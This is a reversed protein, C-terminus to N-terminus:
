EASIEEETWLLKSLDKKGLEWTQTFEAPPMSLKAARALFYQYRLFFFFVDILVRRDRNTM